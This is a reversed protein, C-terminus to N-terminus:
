LPLDTFTPLVVGFNPYMTISTTGERKSVYLSFLPQFFVGNPEYKLIFSPSFKYISTNVKAFSISNALFLCLGNKSLNNTVLYSKYLYKNTIAENTKDDPFKNQLKKLIDFKLENYLEFCIKEFEKDKVASKCIELQRELQKLFDINLQNLNQEIPNNLKEM